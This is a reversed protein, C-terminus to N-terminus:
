KKSADYKAYKPDSTFKKNSQGNLMHIGLEVERKMFALIGMEPKGYDYYNKRITAVKSTM